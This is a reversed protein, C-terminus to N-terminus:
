VPRWETAPGDYESARPHPLSLRTVVAPQLHDAIRDSIYQAAEGESQFNAACVRRVYGNGTEANTVYEIGFEPVMSGKSTEVDSSSM